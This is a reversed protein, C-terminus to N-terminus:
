ASWGIRQGFENSTLLPRNLADVLASASHFDSAFHCNGMPVVRSHTWRIEDRSCDSKVSVGFSWLERMWADPAATGGRDRGRQFFQDSVPKSNVQWAIRLDPYVLWHSKCAYIPNRPVEVDRDHAVPRYACNEVDLRVESPHSVLEDANAPSMALAHLPYPSADTLDSVSQATTMSGYAHRISTTVVDHDDGPLVDAGVLPLDRDLPSFQAFRLKM